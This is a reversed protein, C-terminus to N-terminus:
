ASLRALGTNRRRLSAGVLGFGAIMMAWTAPEPVGGGAETGFFALHSLERPNRRFPLDFTDWTGSNAATALKYLVFEPGAKVAIFDVLFGPTSWTGFSESGDGFVVTGFGGDSQGLFKLDIDPGALPRTDNYLNYDDETEQVTNPAINGEYLCGDGDSVSICEAEVISVASAPVAFSVAALLPLGLKVFNNM